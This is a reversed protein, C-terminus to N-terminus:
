YRGYEDLYNWDEEEMTSNSSHFKIPNGFHLVSEEDIHEEEKLAAGFEDGYQRNTWLPKYISMLAPFLKRDGRKEYVIDNEQAIQEAYDRYRGERRMETMSYHYMEAMEAKTLKEMYSNSSSKASIIANNFAITKTDIDVDSCNWEGGGVHDSVEVRDFVHQILWQPDKRIDNLLIRLFDRTRFLIARILREDSDKLAVALNKSLFAFDKQLIFDLHTFSQMKSTYLDTFPLAGLFGSMGPMKLGPDFFIYLFEFSVSKWKRRGKGRENLENELLRLAEVQQKYVNCYDCMPDEQIEGLLHYAALEWDLPPHPVHAAPSRGAFPLEQVDTRTHTWPYPMGAMDWEMLPERWGTDLIYETATQGGWSGWQREELQTDSEGFIIEQNGDPHMGALKIIPGDRSYCLSGGIVCLIFSFLINQRWAVGHDMMKSFKELRQRDKGEPLALGMGDYQESGGSIVGAPRRADPKHDFYTWEGAIFQHWWNDPGDRKIEKFFPIQVDWPFSPSPDNFLKTNREEWVSGRPAANMQICANKHRIGSRRSKTFLPSLYLPVPDGMSFSVSLCKSLGALLLFMSLFTRPSCKGVQSTGKM